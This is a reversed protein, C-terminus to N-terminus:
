ACRLGATASECGAQVQDGFPAFVPQNEVHLVGHRLGEAKLCRGGRGVLARQHSGALREHLAVVPGGLGHGLEVLDQQEVDLLPQARAGMLRAGDVGTKGVLRAHEFHDAVVQVLTLRMGDQFGKRTNWVAPMFPKDTRM